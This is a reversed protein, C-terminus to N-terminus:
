EGYVVLRDGGEAKAQHLAYEAAELLQEASDCETLDTESYAALGVSVRLPARDLGAIPRSSRDPRWARILTLLRELLPQAVKLGSAPLLLAFADEDYRAVLDQRRISGGLLGALAILLQDGVAHGYTDNIQACGDLDILALSLPWGRSRAGALEQGLCEDLSQRNFLGTLADFSYRRNLGSPTAASRTSHTASSVTAPAPRLPSLAPPPHAPSNPLAHPSADPRRQAADRIALVERAQDLIGAIELADLSRIQFLNAIEPFKEGMAELVVMYDDESLGFWQQALAAIQPSLQWDNPRIWIDAIRIALAVCQAQRQHAESGAVGTPDLSGAVANCIAEPLQWHRLLWAGVEAHDADLRERELGALRGCDLIAPGKTQPDAAQTLLLSYDEPMMLALVMIGIGHLVGALFLEDPSKLALREGLIRCATATLLSRRWFQETDLPTATATRSSEMLSFGLALALTGQLGLLNLVQRLNTAQRRIGYLPSNAARFLKTVLAPDLEIVKALDNLQVDPDNALDIVQLAVAPLSPLNGCFRLRQELEAHM